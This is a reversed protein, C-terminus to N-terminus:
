FSDTGTARRLEAMATRLDYRAQIASLSATTYQVQATLLELVTTGAAGLNYRETTSDLNVKAAEVAARTAEVRERASRANNYAQEVDSIVDKGTQELDAEAGRRQAQAEKERSRTLGSDFLPMSVTAGAFWDQRRSNDAPLLDYSLSTDLRPSRNVRAIDVSSAAADARAKAQLLEPRHEQALRVLQDLAPVDPIDEGVDVLELAPGQGLGMTNRLQVSAIRVDNEAAVREVQRNRLESLPLARDAAPVSEAEIKAEVSRLQEEALRETERRLELTRMARLQNYYGQAVALTLNNQVADLGATSATVNAGAQRVSLRTLGGDYVTYNATVRPQVGASSQTSSEFGAGAGSGRVTEGAVNYAASGTVSPLTGTRAQRVREQAAAVSEEAVAVSGQNDLAIQIARQLTLPGNLAPPDAASAAAASLALILGAMVATGARRLLGYCMRITM